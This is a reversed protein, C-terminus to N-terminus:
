IRLLEDYVEEYNRLMHSMTFKREVRVRAAEGMAHRRDRSGLLEALAEAMAEPAGVPVLLGTEGDVCVEPNGGTDTVVAPRGCAMAELLAVSVGETQSSLVFVDLLPLLRPADDRAGLFRVRGGVGLERALAELAPREEGDGVVLLVANPVPLAAFARVLCPTDKVPRLNGVTGIIAADPAIALEERLAADVPGPRYVEPDVGNHIVTPRRPFYGMEAAADQLWQGVFVVRDMWRFLRPILTATRKQRFIGLGHVTLVARRRLCKAALAGYTASQIDHCHVLRVDRQRLLRVLRVLLPLDFARRKPVVHVTRGEAALEAAFAEIAFCAVEPDFRGRDLRMALEAMLTEAGARAVVDVFQLVRSPEPAPSV